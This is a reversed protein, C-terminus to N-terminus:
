DPRGTLRRNEARVGEVLDTVWSPLPVRAHRNPLLKLYTLVRLGENTLTTACSFLLVGAVRTHQSPTFRPPILKSWSEFATPQKTVDVMVLGCEGGPLQKAEASLVDEARQDSSPVRVIIQRGQVGPGALMMAIAARPIRDDPLVTPVAVSPDGSKVLVIAYDGVHVLGGAALECAERARSATESEEAETLDRALLAELVFPKEVAMVAAAIRRILNTAKDSATSRNLQTVEIYVPPSPAQQIRFDPRRLGGGVSVQPEIEIERRLDPSRLIHIATLESDAAPDACKLKALLQAVGPAAAISPLRVGLWYVPWMAFFGWREGGDPSRINSLVWDRGRFEEALDFARLLEDAPLQLPDGRLWDREIEELTWAM